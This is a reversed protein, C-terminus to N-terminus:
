PRASLIADLRAPEAADRELHPYRPGEHYDINAVLFRDGIKVILQIPDKGARAARIADKLVDPDYAIGNIALIQAGETLRAKFAPSEWIVQTLTGKGGDKDDIEVGISNLLDIRKRQEEISTQYDSPTDTYVLKYGGRHFGELPAPKGFTDLHQHLFAGWDNPEVANLAKVIDDFTYTVVAFSGDNIGFFAHAFDDLSRAGNSHQRIWTDAELWMLAAESYYDEFRQWDLWSMPRRPNIIEDNTTDQLPRWQRGKQVEYHAATIAFQDLAQKATRLGSRAALVQGWYETQGEYVWLLSDQMPVNYNPTWLDAPRRFKGNWSHTFEHPLLDRSSANKDWKTFSDPDTGDESSQHHELGNQQVQDSLSYLFDYHNYHHSGYLRYAQRVLNRYAELHEPKVALLEPRDAFLDMHVPVAAGPDLDLRSAYRGSYVPSDILTEVTTRKFATSAHESSATELATGFQFDAPLTLQVGIPIQRTFYGAPYFLLENWEILVMERSIELAGVKGSTPSLYDFDIDISQTGSSLHELRLAFVDVPDRKWAVAAGNASIRIGGLRDITGEPAHTGPLWKPYLLVTDPGVGTLTEHVRVIRRATDSADVKLQIEGAFPRDKPAAIATIPAIVSPGAAAPVAQAASQAAANLALALSLSSAARASSTVARFTIKFDVTRM